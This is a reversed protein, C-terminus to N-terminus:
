ALLIEHKPTVVLRRRFSNGSHVFILRVSTHVVHQIFIQLFNLEKRPLNQPISTLMHRYINVLRTPWFLSVGSLSTM